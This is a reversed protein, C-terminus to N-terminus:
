EVELARVRYVTEEAVPRDGRLVRVTVRKVGTDAETDAFTGPDVFVVEVERSWGAFADLAEGSATEPPSAEWGDYTDLSEFGSRDRSGVAVGGDVSGVSVEGGVSGGLGGGKAVESVSGGAVVSGAKPGDFAVLATEAIMELALHRGRVGESMRSGGVTLAPVVSLASALAVSAIALCIVSEVM